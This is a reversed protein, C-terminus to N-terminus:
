YDQDKLFFFFSEHGSHQSACLTAIALPKTLLGFTIKASSGVDAKSSTFAFFTISRM